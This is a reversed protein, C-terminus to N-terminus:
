LIGSGGVDRWRTFITVHEAPKEELEPIANITGDSLEQLRQALELWRQKRAGIRHQITEFGQPRNRKYWQRRFSQNLSDCEEAREHAAKVLRELLHNDRSGYTEDLLIKLKMVNRLYRIIGTWHAFDIPMTEDAVPQLRDLIEDYREAENHWFFPDKVLQNKWHIGLLPDDWLLSAPAAREQTRDAEIVLRYDFDAIAQVRAALADDDVGETGQIALEAAYAIGAMATDFECYAGDDCWLAFFLEEIGSSRCAEICPRIAQATKHHAYGFHGGWTWIGSAMVPNPTLEKHREIWETYFTADTHYYDWYVLQADTPIAAKVEAPIRTSPAYYQQEPNGMRFYMDSWLMPRLGHQVCLDRVRSLHRQFLAYGREHGFLDMFRGRGLDHTEDMGIHIRRTRYARAYTGIMKDILEYTRDDDVLLVSPTDKICWYPSWKLAHELHGLTQICGVMEVGLQAAYADLETLEDESYGGRLYGFYPEDPLAYTDETYLLCQNFGFLAAQRLWRRLHDPKMVANRSCDIMLGFSSFPLVEKITDGAPVLRSLLTGLGRLAHSLLAYRVCYGDKSCNIEPGQCGTDHIFLLSSGAPDGREMAPYHATYEILADHLESPTNEPSWILRM